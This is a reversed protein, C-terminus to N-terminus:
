FRCIRPRMHLHFYNSSDVEIGVRITGSCELKKVFVHSSTPIKWNGHESLSNGSTDSMKHRSRRTVVVLSEWELKRTFKRQNAFM